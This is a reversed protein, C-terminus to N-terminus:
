SRLQMWVAWPRGPPFATANSSHWLAQGRSEELCRCRRPQLQIQPCFLLLLHHGHAADPVRCALCTVSARKAPTSSPFRLSKTGFRSSFNAWPCCLPTDPATNCGQGWFFCGETRTANYCAWNGGTVWLGTCAHVFAGLHAWCPQQGAKCLTGRRGLERLESPSDPNAAYGMINSEVRWSPSCRSPSRLATTACTPQRPFPRQCSGPPLALM